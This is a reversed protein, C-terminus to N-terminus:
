LSANGSRAEMEDYDPAPEYRGALDGSIKERADRVTQEVGAPDAEYAARDVEVPLGDIDIVMQEM